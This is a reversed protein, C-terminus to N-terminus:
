DAVEEVRVKGGRRVMRFPKDLEEKTPFAIEKARDSDVRLSMLARAADDLAKQDTPKTM